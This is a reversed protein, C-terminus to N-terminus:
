IAQALLSEIGELGGFTQMIGIGIGCVAMARASTNLDAGRTLSYTMMAAGVPLAVVMLTADIMHAALRLPATAVAPGDDATQFLVSGAVPDSIDLPPIEMHGHSRTADTLGHRRAELTSELKAMMRPLDNPEVFHRPVAKRAKARGAPGDLLSHRRAALSAAMRDVMDPNGIDESHSWITEVAASRAGIRDAIIRALVAHRRALRTDGDPEPGFGVAVTALATGTGDIDEMLALIIRAAGVDVVALGDREWNLSRAGVDHSALATDLDSLLQGFDLGPRQAFVLQGITTRPQPLANM